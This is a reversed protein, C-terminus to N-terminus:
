NIVAFIVGAGVGKQVNGVFEVSELACTSATLSMAAGHDTGGGGFAVQAGVRVHRLSLSQNRLEPRADLWPMVTNVIETTV